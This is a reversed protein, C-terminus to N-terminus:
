TCSLFHRRLLRAQGGSGDDANDAGDNEELGEDDKAGHQEHLDM